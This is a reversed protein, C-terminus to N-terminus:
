FGVSTAHQCSSGRRSDWFLVDPCGTCLLTCGVAGAAVLQEDIGVERVGDAGVPAGELGQGKGALM